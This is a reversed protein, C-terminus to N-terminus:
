LQIQKIVRKLENVSKCLGDYVKVPVGEENIYVEVRDFTIHHIVQLGLKPEYYLKTGVHGNVLGRDEFGIDLFDDKSLKKMWVKDFSNIRDFSFEKLEGAANETYLSCGVYIEYPEPVYLNKIDLPEKRYKEIITVFESLTSFNYSTGNYDIRDENTFVSVGPYSVHQMKKVVIM